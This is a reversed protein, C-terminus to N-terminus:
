SWACRSAEIVCMDLCCVVDISGDGYDHEEWVYFCFADGIIASIFFYDFRSSFRSDLSDCFFSSDFGCGISASMWVIASGLGWYFDDSFDSGLRLWYFFYLLSVYVGHQLNVSTLYDSGFSIAASALHAMLAAFPPLFGLGTTGAAAPSSFPYAPAPMPLTVSANSTVFFTASSTLFFEVYANLAPM